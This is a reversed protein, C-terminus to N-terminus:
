HFVAHKVRLGRRLAQSQTEHLRQDWACLRVCLRWGPRDRYKRFNQQVLDDTYGGEAWRDEWGRGVWGHGLRWAGEM